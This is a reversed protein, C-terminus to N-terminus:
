GGARVENLRRVISRSPQIHHKYIYTFFSPPSTFHRECMSSRGRGLMRELKYSDSMGDILIRNWLVLFFHCAM